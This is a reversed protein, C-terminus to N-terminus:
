GEMAALYPEIALAPDVVACQHVDRSAILYSSCGCDENLVQKFYMTVRTVRRTQSRLRDDVPHRDSRRSAPQQRLRAPEMHGARAAHLGGPRHRPRSAHDTRAAGGLHAAGVM